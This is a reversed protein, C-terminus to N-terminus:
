SPIGHAIRGLLQEVQQAGLETDLRRLPMEGGLARNRRHLWASAKKRDGLVSRALAAIRALRYLRDSEDARFSAQRKRRALTRAPVGLVASMEDPAIQYLAAIAEFVQYPLGKRLSARLDEQNHVRPMTKEGGLSEVIQQTTPM